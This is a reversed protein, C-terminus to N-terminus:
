MGPSCLIKPGSVLRRLMATLGVHVARALEGALSRPGGSGSGQLEEAVEAGGVGMEGRRQM